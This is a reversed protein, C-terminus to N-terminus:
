INLRDAKVLILGIQTLTKGRRAVAGGGYDEGDRAGAHVSSHSLLDKFGRAKPIKCQSLAFLTKPFRSTRSSLIKVM